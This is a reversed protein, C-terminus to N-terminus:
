RVTYEAPLWEDPEKRILDTCRHNSHIVEQQKLLNHVTMVITPWLRHDYRVFPIMEALYFGRHAAFYRAVFEALEADRAGVPWFKRRPWYIWGNEEMLELLDDISAPLADKIM